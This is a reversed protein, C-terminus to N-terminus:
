GAPILEYVRFCREGEAMAEREADARSLGGEAELIAAREEVSEILYGVQVLRYEAPKAPNSESKPASGSGLVAKRLKELDIM